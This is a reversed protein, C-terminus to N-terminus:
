VARGGPTALNPVYRPSIHLTEPVPTIFAASRTSILHFSILTNSPKHPVLFTRLNRTPFSLSAHLELVSISIVSADIRSLTTELPPSRYGRHEAELNALLIHSIGTISM